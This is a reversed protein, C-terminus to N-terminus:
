VIGGFTQSIFPEVFAAFIMLIGSFIAVYYIQRNKYNSKIKIGILTFLLLGYM